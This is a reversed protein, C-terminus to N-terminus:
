RIWWKIFLSDMLQDETNLTKTQLFNLLDNKKWQRTKPIKFGAHKKLPHNDDHPIEKLLFYSHRHIETKMNDNVVKWTSKLQQKANCFPSQDLINHFHPYGYLMCFMTPLKCNNVLFQSAMSRRLEVSVGTDPNPVLGDYPSDYM